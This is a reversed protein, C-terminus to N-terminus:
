HLGNAALAEKLKHVCDAFVDAPDQSGNVSVLRGKAKYYALLPETQANYVSLRAKVTEPKDDERQVLADGCAPCDNGTLQQKRFTGKCGPCSFRGALREILEDEPVMIALAADEAVLAALGEAQPLTRPFGDLIFGNACDPSALRDAVIKLVVEDPVLQGKDTYSQALKGIETGRKINDRFIDGTSIHPLSYHKALMIAQTGKGAGPAGLLIIKM